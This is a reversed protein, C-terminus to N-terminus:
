VLMISNKWKHKGGFLTIRNDAYFFGTKSFRDDSTEFTGAIVSFQKHNCYREM